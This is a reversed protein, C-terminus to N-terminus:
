LGLQGRIAGAPYSANHVNVYYDTLDAIIDAAQEPTTTVCYSLKNGTRYALDPRLDVVVPGASGAPAGHIHAAAVGAIAQVKAAYCITGSLYVDLTISGKGNPDGPGPVEEAGSLSTSLTTFHAASALGAMAFISIAALVAAVSWASRRRNM